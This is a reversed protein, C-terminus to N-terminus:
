ELSVQFNKHIQGPCNSVKFAYFPYHAPLHNQRLPLSLNDRNASSKMDVVAVYKQFSSFGNIKASSSSSTVPGANSHVTKCNDLQKRGLM